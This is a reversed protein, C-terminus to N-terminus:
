DLSFYRKKFVYCLIMLDTTGPCKEYLAPVPRARQLIVTNIIPHIKEDQVVRPNVHTAKVIAHVTKLNPSLAQLLEKAIVLVRMLDFRIM